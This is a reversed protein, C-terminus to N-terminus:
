FWAAHRYAYRGAGARQAEIAQAKYPVSTGESLALAAGERVIQANLDSWKGDVYGALRTVRRGPEGWVQAVMPPRMIKPIVTSWAGGYADDNPLLGVGYLRANEYAFQRQQEEEPFISVNTDFSPYM